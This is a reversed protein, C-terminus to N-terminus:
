LGHFFYICKIIYYQEVRVRLFMNHFLLMMFLITGIRFLMAQNYYARGPYAPAASDDLRPM